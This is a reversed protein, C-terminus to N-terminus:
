RVISQTPGVFFIFGVILLMTIVISIKRGFANLTTAAFANTMIVINQGSLSIIHITGTTILMQYLDDPMTTKVGFVMGALLSAQPEPLVHNIVSTFNEVSFM